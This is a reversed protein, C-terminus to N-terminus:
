SSVIPLPFFLRVPAGYKVGTSTSTKAIVGAHCVCQCGCVSQRFTHSSLECTTLICSALISDRVTAIIAIAAAPYHVTIRGALFAHTPVSKAAAPWRQCTDQPSPGPPPAARVRLSFVSLVSVRHTASGSGRVWQVIMRECFPFCSDVSCGWQCSTSGVYVASM